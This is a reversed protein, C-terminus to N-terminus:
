STATSVARSARTLMTTDIGTEYPLVYGPTKIAM